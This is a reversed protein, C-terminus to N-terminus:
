VKIRGRDSTMEGAAGLRDGLKRHESDSKWNRSTGSAFEMLELVVFRRRRRISRLDTQGFKLVPLM